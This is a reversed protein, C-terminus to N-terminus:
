DYKDAKGQLMGKLLTASMVIQAKEAARQQTVDTILNGWPSDPIDLRGRISAFHYCGHVSNESNDPLAFSPDTHLSM